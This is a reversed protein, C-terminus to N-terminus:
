DEMHERGRLNESLNQISKEDRNTNCAGGM